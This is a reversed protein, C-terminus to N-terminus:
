ISIVSKNSVPVTSLKYGAQTRRKGTRNIISIITVACENLVEKVLTM